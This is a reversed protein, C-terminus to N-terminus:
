NNVKVASRKADSIHTLYIKRLLIRGKKSLFNFKSRIDRRVSCIFRFSLWITLITVSDSLFPLWVIGAATPGDNIPGGMDGFDTTSMDHGQLAM